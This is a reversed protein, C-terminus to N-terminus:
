MAGGDAFGSGDRCGNRSISPGYFHEDFRNYAQFIAGHLHELTQDGRRQITRSITRGACEEPLPGCIFSQGIQVPQAQTKKGAM